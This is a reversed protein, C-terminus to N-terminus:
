APNDFFQQHGIKFAVVDITDNSQTVYGSELEFGPNDPCVVFDIRQGPDM